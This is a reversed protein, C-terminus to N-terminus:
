ILGLFDPVMKSLARLTKAYWKTKLSVMTLAMSLSGGIKAMKFTASNIGKSMELM